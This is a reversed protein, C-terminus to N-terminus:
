VYLGGCMLEQSTLRNTHSINDVVLRTPFFSQQLTINPKVRVDHYPKASRPNRGAFPQINVFFCQSPLFFFGFLSCSYLEHEYDQTLMELLSKSPVIFRLCPWVRLVRLVQSRCRYDCFSFLCGTRLSQAWAEILVVHTKALPVAKKTMKTNVSYGISPM